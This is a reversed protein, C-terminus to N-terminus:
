ESSAKLIDDAQLKICTPSSSPLVIYATGRELRLLEEWGKLMGVSFAMLKTDDVERMRHIVKLSTNKIIERSISSPSQTVIYAYTGWKREERVISDLITQGERNRPAVNHAEEVVVVM